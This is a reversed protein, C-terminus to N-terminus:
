VFQRLADSVYVIICAIEGYGEGVSAMFLVDRSVVIHFSCLPSMSYLLMM